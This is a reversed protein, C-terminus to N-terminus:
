NSSIILHNLVFILNSFLGAGPSRRIIYYKIKKNSKRNKFFFIQNGNINNVNQTFLTKAEFPKFIEKFNSIIKSIFKYM